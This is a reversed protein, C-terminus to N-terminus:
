RKDNTVEQYNGENWKRCYKKFVAECDVTWKSESITAKPTDTLTDILCYFGDSLIIQYRQNKGYITRKNDMSERENIAENLYQSNIM